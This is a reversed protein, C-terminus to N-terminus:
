RQCMTRLIEGNEFFAYVRSRRPDSMYIATTIKRGGPATEGKQSFHRIRSYEPVYSQGQPRGAECIATEAGRQNVWEAGAAM